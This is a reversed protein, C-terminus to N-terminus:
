ALSRWWSTSGGRFCWRWGIRLGWWWGPPLRVRVTSRDCGVLPVVAYHPRLPRDPPIRHVVEFSHEGGVGLQHPLRVVTRYLQGDFRNGQAVIRAGHVVETRVAGGSGGPVKPVSLRVAVEHLGARASVILRREHLEPSALDLRLVVDLERVRWGSEPDDTDPDPPETLAVRAILHFAHDIRRRATRTGYRYEDALREVRVSLRRHRHLPDLALALEAARGLEPPLDACCRAIWVAIRRQIQRDGDAHTVGCLRTLHPGLRGRLTSDQTAWGRRLRILEAVVAKELSM